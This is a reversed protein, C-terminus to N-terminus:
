RGTARFLKKQVTSVIRGTGKLDVQGVVEFEELVYPNGTRCCTQSSVPSDKVQLLFL